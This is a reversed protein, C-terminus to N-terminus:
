KVLTVRRTKQVKGAVLRVLYVGSPEDVAYWTVTHRGAAMPEDLLLAVRQGLLNYVELVVHSAQPLGFPIVTEPNFPNPYNGQLEFVTPIGEGGDRVISTAKGSSVAITASDQDDDTPDGDGLVSDPDPLHNEIIEATNTIQGTGTVRAIITLTATANVPLHGLSWLSDTFVCKSCTAETSATASVFELGGPLRDHVLIGATTSPGGNTVEITYTVLDGPDPSENDVTKMLWLDARFRSLDPGDHQAQSGALNNAGDPDPQDAFVEAINVLDNDGEAKLTITLTATASSDLEGITWIGTDPDYDDTSGSVFMAGVPLPDSVFVGSAKNPGMNTVTLLFSAEFTAGEAGSFDILAKNIKVDAANIETVTADSAAATDPDDTQVDAFNDGSVTGQNVVEFVEKPFPSVVDVVFMITVFAGGGAITGVVVTFSGGLGPTCGTVTGSTSMPTTPLDCILSTNPDVTDTFTVGTAAQNGINTITVTYKIADGPNAGASGVNDTIEDVMKAVVLQPAAQLPTTDSAENPLTPDDGSDDEVSAENMIEEVGAPVPDIVTVEFDVMGTGGGGAVEGAVTFTCMSGATNDPDCTWGSGTFTTNAPVTETLVVGTAGEDGNNTYTLTYTIVDGPMVTVGGDDKTLAMDPAAIVPTVTPECDTPGAPDCVTGPDGDTPVDNGKINDASVFGHNQVDITGDPVPNNLLVEFTITATAGNPLDELDVELTGAVEDCSAISGLDTTLTACDLTTNVPVTDTFRTNLGTGGTNTIIVEYAIVDGPNAAMDGDSDDFTATKTANYIPPGDNTFTCTIDEGPDLDITVKGNPQDIVSGNDTDGTCIITSLVWDSPVTETVDYSGAAIDAFTETDDSPDQLTFTGPTITETFDFVTDDEPTAEKVINITGRGQNSFTCIIQEGPDLDITVKNNALDVVSGNDTDGTCDISELTWSAPLTETM